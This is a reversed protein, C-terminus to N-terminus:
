AAVKARRARVIKALRVDAMRLAARAEEISAAASDIDRAFRQLSSSDFSVTVM